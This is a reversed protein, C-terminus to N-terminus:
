HLNGLFGLGISSLGNRSVPGQHGYTRNTGPVKEPVKYYGLKDPLPEPANFEEETVQYGSNRIPNFSTSRNEWTPWNWSGGIAVTRTQWTNRNGYNGYSTVGGEVIRVDQGGWQVSRQTSTSAPTDPNRLSSSTQPGPQNNEHAHAPERQNNEAQTRPPPRQIIKGKHLFWKPYERPGVQIKEGLKKFDDVSLNSTDLLTLPNDIFIKTCSKEWNEKELRADFGPRSAKEYAERLEPRGDNVVIVFTGGLTLDFRFIIHERKYAMLLNELAEVEAPLACQVSFKGKYARRGALIKQTWDLLSGYFNNPKKLAIVASGRVGRSKRLGSVFKFESNLAETIRSEDPNGTPDAWMGTDLFTIKIRGKEKLMKIQEFYAKCAALHKAHATEILFM